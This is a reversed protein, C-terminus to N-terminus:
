KEETSPSAKSLAARIEAAGVAAIGDIEEAQERYSKSASFCVSRIKDIRKEAWELAEGLTEVSAKLRGLEEMAADADTEARELDARLTALEAADIAIAGTSNSM